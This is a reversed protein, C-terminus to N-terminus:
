RLCEGIMAEINFMRAQRQQWLLNPTAVGDFRFTALQGTTFPLVGAVVRELLTWTRVLPTMPIHIFRPDTTSLRRHMVGLLQRLSVVEPGGFELVTGSPLSADLTDVLLEALDRADIPQVQNRAGGFVPIVPLRALRMLLQTPGSERGIVLTPRVIVSELRTGLVLREAAAKSEAYHYLRLDPFKVAITSIFVFRRVGAREAAQLLAATGDVNTDFYQERPARGTKGALHFVTDCGKLAGEYAATDLLDNAARSPSRTLETVHHQRAILARVLHKGIFGSGGTM